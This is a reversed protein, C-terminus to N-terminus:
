NEKSEFLGKTAYCDFMRGQSVNGAKYVKLGLEKIRISKESIKNFDENEFYDVRVHNLFIRSNNTIRVRIYFVKSDSDYIPHVDNKILTSIDKRNIKVDIYFCGTMFKKIFSLPKVSLFIDRDEFFCNYKM